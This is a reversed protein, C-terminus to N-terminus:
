KATPSYIHNAIRALGDRCRAQAAMITAATDPGILTFGCRSAPGTVAPAPANAIVPAQRAIWAKADELGAGTELFEVYRDGWDARGWNEFMRIIALAEVRVSERAEEPTKHHGHRELVRRHATQRQIMKAAHQAEYAPMFFTHM